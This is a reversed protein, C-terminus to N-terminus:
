VGAVDMIHGHFEELGLILRPGTRDCWDGEVDFVNGNDVAEIEEWRIYTRDEGGVWRKMGYNQARIVPHNNETRGWEPVNVVRLEM